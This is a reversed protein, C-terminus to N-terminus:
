RRRRLVVGMAAVAGFLTLAASSPEPVATPGVSAATAVTAMAATLFVALLPRIPPM